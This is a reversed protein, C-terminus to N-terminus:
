PVRFAQKVIRANGAEDFVRLLLTHGGPRPAPSIRFDFREAEEDWVGDLPDVQRWLKGDLSYAVGTIRSFRDRALGSVMPYAVRLGVVEPKGHDVLVPPSIKESKQLRGAGNSSEDSADLRVEYWGDALSDTKWKAQTATLVPDDGLRRWTVDGLARFWLRYVLADGDPDEAKWSIKVETPAATSQGALWSPKQVPTKGSGIEGVVLEKIIPTQNSATFHLRVERVIAQSAGPWRLRYQFYRGPPCRPTLRQAGGLAAGRPQAARWPSWGKDPEATNGSRTDLSIAGTSRLTLLGFRASAGADHAASTYTPPPAGAGLVYLAGGDGTGFARLRGTLALSLVQREQVAQAIATARDPLVTVVKGSTGEGAFVQGQAGVQLATFYGASTSYVQSAAGDPGLLFIGGKGQKAGLRPIPPPQAGGPQSKIATGKRGPKPPFRVAMSPDAKIDNVAAVLLKSTGVLARVENGAFDHLARAKGPGLIQYVIAKPSSGVYLNDGPGRTLGLLHEEGSDWHVRAKGAGDIAWLKGGPGTAAFLTRAREDYLLAWVHKAELTSFLTAKGSRTDLSFIKGEPLTGAYLTGQPGRAFSTVLVAGQLSAVKTAAGGSYRWIEGSTGTGLYLADGVEIATFVMNVQGLTVRKAAEGRELRGASTVLVGEGKGGSFDEFTTSVWVQTTTGRAAPQLLLLTIASVV